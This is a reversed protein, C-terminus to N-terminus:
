LIQILNKICCKRLIYVCLIEYYLGGTYDSYKGTHKQLIRQLKEKTCNNDIEKIIMNKIEDYKTDVAAYGNM